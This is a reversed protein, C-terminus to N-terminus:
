KLRITELNRPAVTEVRFQKHISSALDLCRSNEGHNIIVKKPKPNCRQVFRMLERRDSHNTIELKLVDMKIHLPEPKGGDSFMFEKEGRQIRNGLSGEAQYCSFILTNRDSDALNKLYEVSPGGVLMGSTAIIVCSGEDEILEKREKASGVRRFCESLFPNQDKHFIMKRVGVSLFEPYATHIATIDWVLGDIYVPTKPIEGERIMTEVLMMIEQARGSGLTPM